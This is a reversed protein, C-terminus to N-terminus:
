GTTFFTYTQVSASRLHIRTKDTLLCTTASGRPAGGRGRVARHRTSGSWWPHRSRQRRQPEQHRPHPIGGRPPLGGGMARRKM